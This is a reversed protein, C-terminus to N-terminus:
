PASTSRTPCPDLFPCAGCCAHPVRDPPPRRRPGAEPAPGAPPGEAELTFRWRCDWEPPRPEPPAGLCHVRIRRDIVAAFGEFELRHMERCAYEELGRRRRAEQTPCRPVTLLVEEASVEMRYGVLLSWPFLRLAEVFGTLGRERIDFRAVLDRAALGSVRGWVEENLREAVEQGFRETARLFWFADVVRYHWLLFQLYKRLDPAPMNDFPTMDM